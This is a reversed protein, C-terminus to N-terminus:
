KSNELQQMQQAEHETESRLRAQSKVLEAERADIAEQQAQQQAELLAMREASDKLKKEFEALEAEQRKAERTRSALREAEADVEEASSALESTSSAAAVDSAASAIATPSPVPEAAACTGLEAALRIRDADAEAPDAAACCSSHLDQPEKCPVKSSIATANAEGLSDIVEMLESVSLAELAIAEETQIDIGLMERVQERLSAEQQQADSIRRVQSIDIPKQVPHQTDRGSPGLLANEMEAAAIAAAQDDLRDLNRQRISKASGDPMQVVWRQSAEDWVQLVVPMGNLETAGRLGSIRALSGPTFPEVQAMEAALREDGNAEDLLWNCAEDVSGGGRRLAHRAVPLSFGLVCLSKVKEDEAMYAVAGARM